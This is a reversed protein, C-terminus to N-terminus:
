EIGQAVVETIDMVKVRGKKERRLRAAAVHFNSKCAPCASVVMDAGIDSAERIRRYALTSSLANDYGKMGGGGGCCNALSRNQKFEVLELGPIGKLINRPPEYIEMHRGIDCPDHYAFEENGPYNPTHELKKDFFQTHHLVEVNELEHHKSLQMLCGPCCTIVQKAQAKKIVSKNHERLEQAGNDDGMLYLPHGCCFEEAGLVLYDAGVHELNKFLSKVVDIQSSRFSMLCGLFVMIDATKGEEYVRDEINPIDMEVEDLWYIARDEPDLGYINQVNSLADKLPELYAFDEPSTEIASKRQEHWLKLLDVDSSCFETCRGCLTCIERIIWKEHENHSRAMRASGSRFDSYMM